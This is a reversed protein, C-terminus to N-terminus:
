NSLFNFKCMLKFHFNKYFSLIQDKADILYWKVSESDRTISNNKINKKIM